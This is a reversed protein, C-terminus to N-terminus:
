TSYKAYPRLVGIVMGQVAVNQPSTFRPELHPNAPQLRVEGKEWYVRKLTVEKEAKLWVVAMQGNEVQSVPEVLVIDGDDILADIMSTGKVRLAYAPGAEVLSQPVEVYGWAEQDWTDSQPVPIPEGAAIQGLLPVTVMGRKGLDIGRSVERDRRIHGQRELVRLNYEAVSTSSLGCGKVVDRITPPYGREGVFAGLFELIRSQKETLMIDVVARPVSTRIKVTLPLKTLPHPSSLIM